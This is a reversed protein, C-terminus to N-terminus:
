KKLESIAQQNGNEAAIRIFEKHKETNQDGGIGEKYMMSIQYPAVSSGNLLALSYYTLAKQLDKEVNTDCFFIDGLMTQAQVNNREASLTLWKIAADMEPPNKNRYLSGLLYMANSNYSKTAKTLIEIYKSETIQSRNRLIKAIMVQHDVISSQSFIDFWKKSERLDVETGVGEHYMTAVQYQSGPNGSEAARLCWKFAEKENKEIKTDSLFLDVLATQAQAHGANAAEEFMKVAQGVDARVGVGDRYMIASRVKSGLHGKNASRMFWILAEKRDEDNWAIKSLLDAYRYENLPNGEEALNKFLGCVETKNNGEDNMLISIKMRADKNGADAALQYYFVAAVVDQEIGIGEFLMDAYELQAQTHRSEAAREMWERAVIIDKRTKSGEQYMKALRYQADIMGLEALESIIEFSEVMEKRYHDCVRKVPGDERVKGGEIWIARDCMEEITALGHSVLLITKGKKAVSRFHQSAKASFSADGTSLIEDVLFIDADVHIMIAFALRGIMGSSYTKLPNDIYDGLNSYDIIRGMKEEIEIKSFGYMSGKLHINERGTMDQHFGMGLELISAVTGNVEIIGTDPMLIRSIMKLLTSKGSGNRGIIGVVEGKGIEISINELVKNLVKRNKPSKGGNPKESIITKFSKSVRKMEIAKEADTM